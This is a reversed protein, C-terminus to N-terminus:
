CGQEEFYAEWPQWGQATFFGWAHTSPGLLVLTVACKGGLLEVRHAHSAQRFVLSGPWRRKRGTPTVEVYGRWLVLSWFCWPHNHLEDADSRHFVHLGPQWRWRKAPTLRSLYPSDGDGRAACGKITKWRFLSM